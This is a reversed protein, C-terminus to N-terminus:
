KKEATGAQLEALLKRFDVRERLANLDSDQKLKGIGKFGAAAAKQLWEMALDAEKDRQAAKPIMLAHLCAIDYMAALSDPRDLGLKAKRLVVTEELLNLAEAHRGTKRYCLALDQMSTLTNLHDPGLKAKRLQLTEENLKVAEKLRGADAYCNALNNMSQLTDPHNSGLNMKRLQLTQQNLELAEQIRGVEAYCLALNEMSYFTDPHDPGLKAKRRELTEENLKLAEKARGADQYCVALTYMSQLTQPHDTGLKAKRLRLAEEALKVADQYRGVRNYCGALSAMSWLTDLHDPGLKARMRALTEEYLKVGEQMRGAFIYASALNDMSLLTDPHDIGVHQTYLERAVQFQEIATKGDGLQYFSKGMTRRLRAEILPQGPFSKKVGPLAAKIADALKVDYGLGGDQNKPRAAAFVKNQFFKLMAETEAERALADDKAKKEAAAADLAQQKAQREGEARQAEAQRAREARVLSWTTGIVGGVLSLLVVMGSLVPVKNRRAFKGLRYAASPPCASVPEDRLYREIDRALGDATEYRRNRDKELAKLAIWDLERRLLGLLKKPEVGRQAAISPLGEVTSLRASPRPPEEERILRLGELFATQKLPKGELPTSGTLLEYLLVGLSYIDSRTDVDVRNLEAQEPSMYELTGVVAGIGTVLTHETVKPGTAKAVGFDIVKPVPKGDYRGVLVNSPKIDRHIIGKQHAHQIARCVIVFLELRDKLKLRQEDCYKTLPAGQVLEMVLYPRGSRTFERGESPLTTGADLVKAINPHDMLALAQREQEFRAIFQRSDLGPKILKLAVQRQVPHSQAALYVTGMGGEGIKRLLRYSGTVTGLGESPGGIGALTSPAEEPPSAPFPGAEQHAVLLVEVRQRLDVQGGCAQDLFAPWEDPGHQEVAELFIAKAPNPNPDM